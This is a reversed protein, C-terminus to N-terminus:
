FRIYKKKKNHNNKNMDLKALQEKLQEINTREVQTTKEEEKPITDMNDTNFKMIGYGKIKRRYRLM